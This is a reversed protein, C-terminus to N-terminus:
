RPLRASVVFENYVFIRGLRRPLPYSYRREVTAGIARCLENIAEFDVFRVHTQDSRYGIEQPTEIILQGGPQVFEVYQAVLGLAVEASVHEVVHSLLLTDFMCRQAYESTYFEDPTFAVYGRKRAITVAHENPDVGVGHGRLNKLNRGIGCGIDLTLGPQLRLLNWRYPAQVDFLRKWWVQQLAVLRNAYETEDSENPSSVM